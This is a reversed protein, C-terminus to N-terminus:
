VYLPQPFCGTSQYQSMKNCASPQVCCMKEPLFDNNWRLFHDVQPFCGWIPTPLRTLLKMNETGVFRRCNWCNTYACDVYMHVLIRCLEANLFGMTIVNLTLGLQCHKHQAKIALTLFPSFWPLSQPMGGQTLTATTLLARPRGARSHDNRGDSSAGCGPQRCIRGKKLVSTVAKWSYVFQDYSYCVVSSWKHLRSAFVQTQTFACHLGQGGAQEQETARTFGTGFLWYTKHIWM